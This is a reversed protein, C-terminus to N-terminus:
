GHFHESGTRSSQETLSCDKIDSDGTMTAAAEFWKPHAKVPCLMASAYHHAPKHPISM